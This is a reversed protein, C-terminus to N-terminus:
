WISVSKQVTGSKNEVEEIPPTLGKNHEETDIIMPLGKELEKRIFAPIEQFSVIYGSITDETIDLKIEYDTNIDLDSLFYADTQLKRNEDTVDNVVFKLHEMEEIYDQSLSMNFQNVVSDEELKGRLVVYRTMNRNKVVVEIDSVLNITYRGSFDKTSFLVVEKKEIEIVKQEKPEIIKEEIERNQSKPIITKLEDKVKPEDEYVYESEVEKEIHPQVVKIAEPHYEEEPYFFYVLLLVVIGGVLFVKPKDNEFDLM